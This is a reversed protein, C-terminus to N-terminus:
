PVASNAIIRAANTNYAVHAADAADRMVVSGGFEVLDWYQGNREHLRWKWEGDEGLWMEIKLPWGGGIAGLAEARERQDYMWM